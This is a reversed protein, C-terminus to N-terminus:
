KNNFYIGIHTFSFFFSTYINTFLYLTLHTEKMGSCGTAILLMVKTSESEGRTIKVGRILHSEISLLPHIYKVRYINQSPVSATFNRSPQCLGVLNKKTSSHYEGERGRKRKTSHLKYFENQQSFSYSIIYRIDNQLLSSFVM